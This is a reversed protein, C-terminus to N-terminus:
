WLLAGMGVLVGGAVMRWSVKLPTSPGDNRLAVEHRDLPQRLRSERPTRGRQDARLQAQRIEVALDARHQITRIALDTLVSNIPDM